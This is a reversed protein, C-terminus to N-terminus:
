GAYSPVLAPAAPPGGFFGSFPNRRRPAQPQPPTVPATATPPTRGVPAPAPTPPSIRNTPASMRVPARGPVAHYTAGPVGARVAADPASAWSGAGVMRPAVKKGFWKDIFNAKPAETSVKYGLSHEMIQGMNSIRGPSAQLEFPTGQHTGKINVGHYGPRAVVKHSLNEAGISRLHEVAAKAEEPTKAYFQMGLLDDPVKTHGGATLSGPSKVRARHIKVGKKGLADILGEGVGVAAKREAHFVGPNAVLKRGGILAEKVAKVGKPILERFADKEMERATAIKELEDQFAALTAPHM